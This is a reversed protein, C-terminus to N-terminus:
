RRFAIIFGSIVEYQRNVVPRCCPSVGERGPSRGFLLTSPPCNRIRAIPRTMGWAICYRALSSSRTPSRATLKGHKGFFGQIFACPAQSVPGVFPKRRMIM